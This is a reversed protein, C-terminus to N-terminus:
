EASELQLQVGLAKLDFLHHLLGVQVAIAAYVVLRMAHRTLSGPVHCTLIYVVLRM